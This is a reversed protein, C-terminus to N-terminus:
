KLGIHTTFGTSRHVRELEAWIELTDKATMHALQDWKVALQLEAWAEQNKWDWVQVVNPPGAPRPMWGLAVNRLQKCILIAEMLIKWIEYNENNLKMM